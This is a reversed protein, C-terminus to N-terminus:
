SPLTWFKNKPFLNVVDLSYSFVTEFVKKHISCTVVLKNEGWEDNINENEVFVSEKLWHDFASLKEWRLLCLRLGSGSSLIKSWDLNFCIASSM